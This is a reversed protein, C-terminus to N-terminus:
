IDSAGRSRSSSGGCDQPPASSTTITPPPSAPRKQASFSAGRGTVTTVAEGIPSPAEDTQACPPIAAAMSSLSEGSAWTSSVSFAPAPMTSRRMASIIATSAGARM